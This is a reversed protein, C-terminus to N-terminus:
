QGRECDGINTGPSPTMPGNGTKTNIKKDLSHIIRKVFEYIVSIKQSFPLLLIGLRGLAMLEVPM